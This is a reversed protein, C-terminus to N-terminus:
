LPPARAGTPQHCATVSPDPRDDPFDSRRLVRRGIPLAPQWTPCREPRSLDPERHKRSGRAPRVNPTPQSEGSEGPSRLRPYKIANVCDSAISTLRTLPLPRPTKARRAIRLPSTISFTGM